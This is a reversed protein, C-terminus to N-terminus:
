PLALPGGAVANPYMERLMASQAQISANIGIPSHGPGAKEAGPARGSHFIGDLGGQGWQPAQPSTPGLGVPMWSAQVNLGGRSMPVGAPPSALMRGGWGFVEGPSRLGPVGGGQSSRRLALGRAVPSAFPYDGTPVSEPSSSPLAAIAAPQVPLGDSPGPIDRAGAAILPEQLLEVLADPPWDDPSRRMVDVSPQPDDGGWNNMDSVPRAAAAASQSAGEYAPARLHGGHSPQAQRSAHAGHNRVSVLNDPQAVVPAPLPWDVVPKPSPSRRLRESQKQEEARRDQARRDEERERLLQECVRVLSGIQERLEAESMKQSPSQLKEHTPQADAHKSREEGSGQEERRPGPSCRTRRQRDPDRRRLRAEDEDDESIGRPWPERRGRAEDVQAPPRAADNAWPEAGDHSEHRERPPDRDRETRRLRRRRRAETRKTEGGETEQVTSLGDPEAPGASPSYSLWPVPSETDRGPPSLSLSDLAPDRWTRKEYSRWTGGNGVGSTDTERRRRRRRRRREEGEVWPGASTSDAASATYSGPQGRHIPSGPGDGSSDKSRGRARLAAGQSAQQAHQGAGEEAGAVVAARAKAAALERQHWEEIEARERELRREEQLDEEIRRQREEEKRKQQERIQDALMQAQVKKRDRERDVSQRDLHFLDARGYGYPSNGGSPSLGVEQNNPSGQGIDPAVNVIQPALSLHVPAVRAPPIISNVARNSSIVVEAQAATGVEKTEPNTQTGEEVADVTGVSAHRAGLPPPPDEDDTSVAAHKVALPLKSGKSRTRGTSPIRRPNPVEAAKRPAAASAAGASPVAGKAEARRTSQLRDGALDKQLQQLLEASIVACGPPAGAPAAAQSQRRTPSKSSAQVGLRRKPSPGGRHQLRSGKVPSLGAM